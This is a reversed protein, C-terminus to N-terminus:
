RVATPCLSRWDTARVTIQVLRTSLITAQRTAWATTRWSGPRIRLRKGPASFTAQASTLFIPGKLDKRRQATHTPPEMPSGAKGKAATMAPSEAPATRRQGLDLCRAFPTTKKMNGRARPKQSIWPPARWSKRPLKTWGDRATHAKPSHSRMRETIEALWSQSSYIGGGTRIRERKAPLSGAEQAKRRALGRSSAPCIRIRAAWTRSAWSERPTGTWPVKKSRADERAASTKGRTSPRSFSSGALLAARSM